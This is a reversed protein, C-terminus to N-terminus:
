RTLIGDVGVNAEQGLCAGLPFAVNGQGEVIHVVDSQNLDVLGNKVATLGEADVRAFVVGASRM